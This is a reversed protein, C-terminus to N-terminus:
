IALSHMSQSTAVGARLKQCEVTLVDSVASLFNDNRIEVMSSGLSDPARAIFQGNEEIITFNNITIDGVTVSARYGGDAQPEIDTLIKVITTPKEDFLKIIEDLEANMYTKTFQPIDVGVLTTSDETQETVRYSHDGLVLVDNVVLEGTLHLNQMPGIGTLSRIEKLDDNWDKGKPTDTIVDGTFSLEKLLEALKANGLRGADDNDLALIVKSFQGTQIRYELAKWKTTSGLILYDNERYDRGDMNMLEMYSMADIAAETVVLTNADHSVLMGKDYDCGKLDGKFTGNSYTSRLMGYCVEGERDRGVFVCNNRVDQYLYGHKIMHGIIGASIGRTKNLYGYVRRNNEAHQPLTIKQKAEPEEKKEAKPQAAAKTNEGATLGAFELLHRVAKSPTDHETFEMVFDIISGGRQTSNRYYMGKEPRIILSDHERTTLVNGRKVVHMGLYQAYDEIKVQEKVRDFDDNGM